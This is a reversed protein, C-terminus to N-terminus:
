NAAGAALEEVLAALEERQARPPCGPHAYRLSAGGWRLRRWLRLANKEVFLTLEEGRGCPREENYFGTSHAASLETEGHHQIFSLM